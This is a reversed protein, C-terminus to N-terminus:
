QECIQRFRQQDASRRQQSLGETVINLSWWKGWVNYCMEKITSQQLSTWEEEIATGLQQINAPVPGTSNCIGNWIMMNPSDAPWALVGEDLFQTSIKAVHPRRQGYQLMLHHDHIFPVFVPRRTDPDRHMWLAIGIFCVQAQRGHQLLGSVGKWAM